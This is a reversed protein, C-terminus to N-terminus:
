QGWGCFIPEPYYVRRDLPTANRYCWSPFCYPFPAGAPAECLEHHDVIMEVVNRDPYYYIWSLVTDEPLCLRQIIFDPSIQMIARGM